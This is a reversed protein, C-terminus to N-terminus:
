KKKKQQQKEVFINLIERLEEETYEEKVKNFNELWIEVSDYVELEFDGKYWDQRTFIDYGSEYRYTTINFGITYYSENTINNQVKCFRCHKLFDYSVTGDIGNIYGSEDRSYSIDDISLCGTLPVTILTFTLLGAILKKNINKIKGNKIKM